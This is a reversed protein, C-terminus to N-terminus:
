FSTKDGGRETPEGTGKGCNSTGKGAGREMSHKAEHAEEKERERLEEEANVEEVFPHKSILTKRGLLDKSMSIMEVTEFDNTIRNKRLEIRIEEAQFRTKYKRNYDETLFGFYERMAEKLQAAIGDAKLDLLTYQYQLSVGSPSNGMRDVDIDVGQGFQFIDRRLMKLFIWGDRWPSNRKSRRWVAMPMQSTCRRTSRYNGHSPRQRKGGGYGQIVWYLDVLDLLTNVGESSILDYADILGKIGELDTRGQRNNKLVM